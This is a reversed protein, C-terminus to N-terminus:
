EHNERDISFPTVSPHGSAPSVESLVTQAVDICQALYTYHYGLRGAPVLFTSQQPAKGPHGHRLRRAVLQGLAKTTSVFTSFHQVGQGETCDAWRAYLGYALTTTLPVGVLGPYYGGQVAQWFRATHQTLAESGAPMTTTGTRRGDQAAQADEATTGLMELMNVGTQAQTIANAKAVARGTGLGAARGSRISARFIRDAAVQIDAVHSLFPPGGAPTPQAGPMTYTGTKRLSPLVEHTVWRKFRKAEPKRSGLVLSYLGPENVITLDQAGGLIDVNHVGKEDDDLMRTAHPVHKYGLAGCVDAAVFWPEGELMVVRLASSDFAFVTATPYFQFKASPATKLCQRM